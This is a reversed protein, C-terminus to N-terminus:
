ATSEWQLMIRAVMECLRALKPITYYANDGQIMANPDRQFQVNLKNTGAPGCVAALEFEHGQPRLPYHEELAQITIAVDWDKTWHHEIPTM